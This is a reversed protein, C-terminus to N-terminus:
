WGARKRQQAAKTPVQRGPLPGGEGLMLETFAWVLADLRDPSTDAPTWTTLQGELEPFAGAHHILHREYLAAVPEARLVKGRTARVGQYAVSKGGVARINAEVLDGGQNTEAVIRDAAYKRYLDVAVQGWQTATYKGSADELVYGHGDLGLGAVIIGTENSEENASVAPDIAVVIRRMPLKLSGFEPAAEDDHFVDGYTRRDAEIQDYRWLANETDDLIEGDLEQRGLRTGEYSALLDRFSEALNAYNDRTRGGTVHVGGRRERADKALRKLLAVPRPTTTVAVQPRYQPLRLGMQLNGWTEVLYRWAALEDCWAFHHQPGRLQDPRDGSYCTATSGNPWTLRRKSPEWIPRFWPPSCALIGSEGEVMVDRYDAATRAVLAIRCGPCEAAKAIVWESGTRSKGWGRGALILWINWSWVPALQDPRAWFEWRHYLDLKEEDTLSDLFAARDAEPLRALALATLKM